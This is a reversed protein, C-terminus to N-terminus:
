EAFYGVIKLLSVQKVMRSATMYNLCPGEDPTSEVNFIYNVDVPYRVEVEKGGIYLHEDKVEYSDGLCYTAFPLAIELASEIFRIGDALEDGYDYTRGEQHLYSDPLEIYWRIASTQQNILLHLIGGEADEDSVFWGTAGVYFDILGEDQADISTAYWGAHPGIEVKVFGLLSLLESSFHIPKSQDKQVRQM